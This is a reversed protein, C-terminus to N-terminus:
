RVEVAELAEKITKGFKCAPVYKAPKAAIKMEEGTAPNRGIKEEQANKVRPSLTMFGTLKVTDGSVLAETVAEIFGDVALATEKQTIGAKASIARILEQKNM